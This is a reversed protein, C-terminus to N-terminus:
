YKAAANKMANLDSRYFIYKGQHHQTLLRDHLLSHAYPRETLLNEYAINPMELDGPYRGAGTVKAVTFIRSVSHGASNTNDIM